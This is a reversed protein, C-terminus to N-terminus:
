SPTEKTVIRGMFYVGYVEKVDGKVILTASGTIPQNPDSGAPPVWSVIISKTQGREVMGKVPDLSFGKLQLLQLSEWTFEVNKKSAFQATRIAGVKLERVAPIVMTESQVCKLSVLISNTAKEAEVDSGAPPVWSVIISKTQGREVMGKVPDLSFGKLQLLQLSEWTFEVNKKSAFQATRIAGVKLERVAPIVMTESQVCKLSVLISNTAKEAEAKSAEESISTLVALSEFPVDLPEGGEVYMIHNRAAGKLQIVRIIEKDFLLIQIRDSYYLSEHDPSFTVTFEQSKGVGIFGQMPFISFVSLGSYNQTGVVHTERPINLFPPFTQLERYRDPSLSDLVISYKLALPSINEIKFVSTTTEKSVVYGMNLVDEELSCAISTIVGRGTLTLTLTAKDTRIELIEFYSKSEEPCFSLVLERSEGEGLSCIPNALLFPGFPDLLSYGLVLHEKSINQIEVEKKIRHGVAIDGFNFFTRGNNSTVVVVPAVSPCHLELYLTNYPSFNMNEAGRKEDIDGSAVLCPIIYKDFRSPYSRALNLHAAIYEESDTSIDEPNPAEFPKVPSKDKSPEALFSISGTKKGDKRGLMAAEEKKRQIELERARKEMQAKIEANQCSINVAEERILQDPLAPHFSVDLLCKKGPLVTGVCPIIIIPSDEPVLFQFSTPGVPAIDGEGIRPMTHTFHSIREHPNIIFLTAASVDDLATAPFQVFSHSLVLPPHVGVAKCSLKFERNIETKCILEFSYVKAKKAKFIVDLSLSELPLLIGFGDNPQVEIFKPLEVFGFEQPLIAKNTLTITTRVAEYISCYGFDVEAPSIELDSTTLIAHMTFEVPKSQESVIITMPAELVRTREDFYKKADKSLSIRPLFKLQVSFSSQAQIYGTKPLLEVYSALEKCVEFKLRLASTARSQVVICDQYLRDYMCIKLDVTPNCVRVPVAMSVAVVGIQLPKCDPNEFIIELDAQITGPVVPTFIIQLKVSSFPGIDGKTVKGLKLECIEEPPDELPSADPSVPPIEGAIDMEFAAQPENTTTVTADSHLKELLPTNPTVEESHSLSVADTGISYSSKETSFLEGVVPNVPKETSPLPTTTHPAKTDGLKRLQFRTGLAGDNMLTITRSITEGVVHMGFYILEKDLSLVCKKTSCKLPISFSGTQSLFTVEGELDENIMPKFTVGVECSMGSSMPGPPDFLVTFFDKLHESVGDLKCYNISYFANILTVKKKYTKGVDFDKFHILSPKSYFPCGKFERGCVRHKRIVGAHLKELNRTFIDKELKSVGLPKSDIKDDLEQLSNYEQDWIGVFEPEALVNDAEEEEGETKSEPIPECSATCSKDDLSPSISPSRRPKKDSCTEEIYRWTKMRWKVADSVKDPDKSEQLCSQAKMKEVQGEEKLIRAVIEIKRAKQQELFEKKRKEFEIQRKQCFFERTVNHGKAQIGEKIKQDQEEADLAILKGLVQRTRLNERNSSISNKLSLVTEMRKQLHEQRNQEEALEKQRVKGLSEKLFRVAKAHNRQSEELVNALNEEYAKSAVQIKRETNQWRQSLLQAMEDQKQLREEAQDRRQQDLEAEDIKLQKRLKAFNGEEIEIKWMEFVNENLVTSIKSELDKENGLEACLRRHLAQLRFVATTNGEKKENEIDKEVDKQQSTLLDLRARCTALEERTKQILLEKQKTLSDLQNLNRRLNLVRVRDTYNM